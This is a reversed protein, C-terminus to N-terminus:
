APFSSGPLLCLQTPLRSFYPGEREQADTEEDHFPYRYRGQLDVECISVLFSVSLFRHSKSAPNM